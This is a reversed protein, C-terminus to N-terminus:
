ITAPTQTPIAAAVLYLVATTTIAGSTQWRRFLAEREPIEGGEGVAPSLPAPPRLAVAHSPPAPPSLAPPFVRRAWSAASRTTGIMTKRIAQGPGQSFQSLKQFPPLPM